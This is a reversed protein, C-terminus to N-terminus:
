LDGKESFSYYGRNTVIIHDVVKIDLLDGAKQLKTTVKKDAESPYLSGSPHNHALVLSSAKELIAWKFIQRVDVVTGSFGGQTIKKYKLLMNRRNLLIVWFEEHPLDAISPALLGYASKSNILTQNNLIDQKQRRRGLELAAAITVAKAQGIGKTKQFEDLTKEGLDVLSNNSANLIQRALELASHNKTGSGILIALLEADTLHHRGNHILKERPRDEEAWYKITSHNTTYAM